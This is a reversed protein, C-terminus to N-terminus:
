PSQLLFIQTFYCGRKNYAVGIGTLNYQGEINERHGPSSLWMKVVSNSNGGGVFAVNEAIGHTDKFHKSLQGARQSFGQHGLKDNAMAQSHKQAIQSIFNNLQLPSLKHTVRYANIDRFIDPQNALAPRSLCFLLFLTYALFKIKM